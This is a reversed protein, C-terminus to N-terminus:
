KIMFGKFLFFVEKGITEQRYIYMKYESMFLNEWKINLKYKIDKHRTSILKTFVLDALDIFCNM